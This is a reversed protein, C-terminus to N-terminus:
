WLYKYKGYTIICVKPVETKEIIRISFLKSVSFFVRSSDRNKSAGTTRISRMRDVLKFLCFPIIVVQSGYKLPQFYFLKLGTNEEFFM